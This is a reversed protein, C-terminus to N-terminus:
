DAFLESYEIEIENEPMERYEERMWNGFMARLDKESMMEWQAQILSEIKQEITM